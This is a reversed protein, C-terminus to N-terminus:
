GPIRLEIGFASQFSQLIETKKFPSRIFLFSTGRKTKLRVKSFAQPPPPPLLVPPPVPVWGIETFKEARGGWAIVTPSLTPTDAVTVFSLALAPTLQLQVGAPAHPVNVGVEVALPALVVYTAGPVTGDPPCTTMVAAETVSEVFVACFVTWILAATVDILTVIECSGGAVSGTEPVAGTVAITVASEAAAPTVQLQVGEPDHPENLGFGEGPLV